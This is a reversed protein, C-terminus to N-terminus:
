NTLATVDDTANEEVRGMLDMGKKTFKKGKEKQRSAGEVGRRWGWGGRM